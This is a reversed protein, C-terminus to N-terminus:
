DGGNIASNLAAGDFGFSISGTNLAGAALSSIGALDTGNAIISVSGNIGANNYAENVAYVGAAPGSSASAFEMSSSLNLGGLSAYVGSGGFAEASTNTTSAAASSVQGDLYTLDDLSGDFSFSDKSSAATGVSAIHGTNIAGAAVTSIEATSAVIAGGTYTRAEVYNSTVSYASDETINLIGAIVGNVSSSEQRTNLTDGIDTTTHGINVQEINHNATIDVSADIPAVNIARNVWNGTTYQRMQDIVPQGIADSLSQAAAPSVVGLALVAATTLYISRIRM